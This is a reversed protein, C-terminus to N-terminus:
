NCPCMSTHCASQWPRCAFAQQSLYSQPLDGPLLSAAFPAVFAGAIDLPISVVEEQGAGHAVLRCEPSVQSHIYWAILSQM